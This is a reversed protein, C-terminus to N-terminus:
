SHYRRWVVEAVIRNGDVVRQLRLLLLLEYIKVLMERFIIVRLSFLRFELLTDQKSSNNTYQHMFASGDSWM